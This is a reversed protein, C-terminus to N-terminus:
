LEGRTYTEGMLAENRQRAYERFAQETAAVDWTTRRGQLIFHEGALLVGARRLEIFRNRSIRFRRAIETSILWETTTSM